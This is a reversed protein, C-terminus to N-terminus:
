QQTAESSVSQVLGLGLSLQQPLTLRLLKSFSFLLEENLGSIDELAGAFLGGFQVSEGLRKAEQELLQLKPQDRQNGKHDKFETTETLCRIFFQYAEFGYADLIQTIETVTAKYNKKTLNTVLYRLQSFVIHGFSLTM